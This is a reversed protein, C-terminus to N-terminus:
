HGHAEPVESMAADIAQGYQGYGKERLISKAREAEILAQAIHKLRDSDNGAVAKVMADVWMDARSKM